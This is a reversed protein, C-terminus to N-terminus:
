FYTKPSEFHTNKPPYRPLREREDFQEHRDGDDGDQHAQENGAHLHGALATALNVAPGVQPAHGQCHLRVLGRM